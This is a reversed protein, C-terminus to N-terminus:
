WSALLAGVLYDAADDFVGAFKIRLRHTKSSGGEAVPHEPDLREGPLPKRGM